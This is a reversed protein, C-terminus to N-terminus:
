QALELVLGVEDIEDGLGAVTLGALNRVRLKHPLLLTTALVKADIPNGAFARDRVQRVLYSREPTASRKSTSEPATLRTQVGSRGHRRRGGRWQAREVMHCNTRPVARVVVQTEFLCALVIPQRAQLVSPGGFETAEDSACESESILM